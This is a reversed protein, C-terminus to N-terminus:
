QKDGRAEGRRRLKVQDLHRESHPGLDREALLRDRLRSELRAVGLRDPVQLVLAAALEELDVAKVAAAPTGLQERVPLAAMARQRDRAVALKEGEGPRLPVALVRVDVERVAGRGLVGAADR